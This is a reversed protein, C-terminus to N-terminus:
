TCCNCNTPITMFEFEVEFKKIAGRSKNMELIKKIKNFSEMRSEFSDKSCWEGITEFIGICYKKGYRRHSHPYCITIMDMVLIFDM